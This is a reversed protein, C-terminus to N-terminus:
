ATNRPSRAAARRLRRRALRAGAALWGVRRAGEAATARLLGEAVAGPALVGLVEGSGAHPVVLLYREGALALREIADALPEEPTAYQIARRAAEGACGTSGARLAALLDRRTLLGTPTGDAAVVPWADHGAEPRAPDALWEAIAALPTPAPIRVPTSEMVAGVRYRHLPPVSYERAVHHGRRAVKETLMSRPLLLVTVAHAAVCAALVAPLAPVASTLELLFVTATLPAGMGSGMLSAMGLMAWFGPDGRHLVAGTLVGFSGGILLLPALIGGSTGSGLAVVWILAKAGFLLLAAGDQLQGNLLARISDYGVGLARPAVLGGLGVVVGGLAPWWFQPLGSARFGDEVAYLARTLGVGILGTVLGLGGALLVTAGDPGPRPAVPFVPGAGLLPQRLAGAILAAFIAAMGAASGAVLLTKRESATLHFGQAFLSGFAGGTMIIPGEAGFPGGTGIAIASAVPKLLAVRADMRSGGVLISELAEPIGHGRIRDTGYRALLGVVLGGAAPVLVAWPGLRTVALSVAEGSFRHFYAFNTVIAILWVLAKAVAAGLAGILVALGTLFWVRRDASFDGGPPLSM